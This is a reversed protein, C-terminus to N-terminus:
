LKNMTIISPFVQFVKFPITSSYHKYPAHGPNTVVVNPLVEYHTRM